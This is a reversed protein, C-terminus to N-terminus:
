ASRRHSVGEKYPLADLHSTRDTCSLVPVYLKRSLADVHLQQFQGCLAICVLQSRAGRNQQPESPVVWSTQSAKLSPVVSFQWLLVVCCCESEEVTDEAFLGAPCLM